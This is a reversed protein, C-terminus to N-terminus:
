RVGDFRDGGFAVHRCLLDLGQGSESAPEGLSGFGPGGRDLGSAPAVVLTGSRVGPGEADVYPGPGEELLRHPLRWGGVLM